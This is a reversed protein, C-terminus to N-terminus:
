ETVRTGTILVRQYGTESYTDKNETPDYDPNSKNYVQESVSTCQTLIRNGTAQAGHNISCEARPQENWVLYEVSPGDEPVYGNNLYDCSVIVADRPNEVETWSFYSTTTSTSRLPGRIVEGDVVEISYYSIQSVIKSEDCPVEYSYDPPVTTGGPDTGGTGGNTGGTGQASSPSNCAAVLALGMMMGIKRM